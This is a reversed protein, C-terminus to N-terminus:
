QSRVEFAKGSLKVMYRGDKQYGKDDIKYGPVLIKSSKDEIMAYRQQIDKENMIDATNYGAKAIALLKANMIAENRDSAMDSKDGDNTAKEHISVKKGTFELVKLKAIVDASCNKQVAAEQLANKEGKIRTYEAAQPGDGGELFFLAPWFLVAGIAMQATDNDAEKKLSHYLENERRSVNDSEQILQDCSYDKYILPSVYSAQMKDPSSACGSVCFALVLSAGVGLKRSNM